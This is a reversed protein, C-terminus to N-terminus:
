HFGGQAFRVHFAHRRPDWDLVSAGTARVARIGQDEARSVVRQATTRAMARVTRAEAADLDTAVTAMEHDELLGGVRPTTVLVPLRTRRHGALRRIRKVGAVTDPASESLRTCVLVLPRARALHARTREVAARLGGHVDDDGSADSPDPPTGPRLEQLTNTVKLLQHTGSDPAVVTPNGANYTTLGLTTGRTLFYHALTAAAELSAELANEIANGVEMYRAGDVFLWVTKKGEREYENVLPVVGHGPPGTTLRRATAKWNVTRPPDGWQYDRIDRFETTQVGLQAVDNEPFLRKAVGQMGRFRDVRGAAPRVTLETATGAELTRPALLGAPDSVEVLVPPLEHDGRKTARFRFGVTDATDQWGKATLHLNSGDVLEFLDPLDQHVLLNAVGGRAHVHLTCTVEDGVRPREPDLVREVTVQPRELAAATLLTFLPLASLVLLLDNGLGVGALLLTVGATLLAIGNRTLTTIM